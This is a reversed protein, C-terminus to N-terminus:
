LTLGCITEKDLNHKKFKTVRPGVPPLTLSNYFYATLLNGFLNHFSSVMCTITITLSILMLTALSCSLLAMSKRPFYNVIPIIVVAIGFNM